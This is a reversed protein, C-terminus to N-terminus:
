PLGKRKRREALQRTQRPTLHPQKKRTPIFDSPKLPKTGRKRPAVNAVTSAIVGAHWAFFPYGFPEEVSYAMWDVLEASSVKENLERISWGM